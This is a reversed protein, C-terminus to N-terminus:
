GLLWGLLFLLASVIAICVFFGTKSVDEVKDNMAVFTCSWILLPTLFILM